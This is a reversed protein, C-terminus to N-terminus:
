KSAGSSSDATHSQHIKGQAQEFWSKTKRKANQWLGLSVEKTTEM